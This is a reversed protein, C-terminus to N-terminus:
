SLLKSRVNIKSVKADTLLCSINLLRAASSM